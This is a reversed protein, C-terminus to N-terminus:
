ATGDPSVEEDPGIPVIGYAMLPEGDADAIFQGTANRTLCGLAMGADEGGGFTLRVERVGAGHPIGLLDCAQQMQAYSVSRPLKVAM